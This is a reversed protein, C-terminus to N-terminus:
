TGGTISKRPIGVYGGVGFNSKTGYTSEDEWDDFSVAREQLGAPWMRKGTGLTVQLRRESLMVMWASM